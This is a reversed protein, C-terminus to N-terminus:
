AAVATKVLLEDCACFERKGVEGVVALCPRLGSRGHQSELHGCRVCRRDATQNGHNHKQAM